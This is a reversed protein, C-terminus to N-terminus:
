RVPRIFEALDRRQRQLTEYRAKENGLVTIWTRASEESREDRSANRAAQIGEDYRNLEMFARAQSLYVQDARDLGGKEFAEAFADLAEEMQDLTMHVRGLRAYLEGDESMAAARELYPLARADERAVQYCTALFALNDEDEEIIGENIGKELIQACGWPNDFNFLQSALNRFEGDSDLYGGIEAVYYLYSQENFRELQGALNALLAWDGAENFLVVMERTVQYAAEFDELNLHLARLLSYSSQPVNEGKARVMDINQTLYELSENYQELTYYATAIRLYVDDNPEFAIQIYMEFAQIAAQFDELFYNLSGIAFWTQEILDPALNEVDLIKIYNDLAGRYNEEAQDLSAYFLWMTYTERDNLRGRDFMQRIEDLEERAGVYDELDRLEIIRNIRTFVQQSLTQSQRTSPPPRRGEEAAQLTPSLFQWGTASDVVPVMYLVAASIICLLCSLATSKQAGANKLRFKAM